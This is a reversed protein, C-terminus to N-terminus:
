SPKSKYMEGQVKKASEHLFYGDAHPNGHGYTNNILGERASCVHGESSALQDLDASNTM